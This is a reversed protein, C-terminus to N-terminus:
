FYMFAESFCHELGRKFAWGTFMVTSLWKNKNLRSLNSDQLTNEITKVINNHDLPFKVKHVLFIEM